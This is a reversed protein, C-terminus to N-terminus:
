LILYLTSNKMCYYLISFERLMGYSSHKLQQYARQCSSVGLQFMPVGNQVSAHWSSFNARRIARLFSVNARKSVDVSLCTPVYVVSARLCMPMHVVSARLCTPVYVVNTCLVCPVRNLLSSPFRYLDQDPNTVEWIVFFTHSFEFFEWIVPKQIYATFYM